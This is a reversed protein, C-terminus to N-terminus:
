ITNKNVYIFINSLYLIYNIRACKHLYVSRVSLDGNSYVCRESFAWWIDSLLMVSKFSCPVYFMWASSREQTLIMLCEEFSYFICEDTATFVTLAEENHVASNLLCKQMWHSLTNTHLSTINIGPRQGFCLTGHLHTHFASCLVISQM